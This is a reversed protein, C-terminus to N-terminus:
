LLGVPPLNVLCQHPSWVQLQLKLTKVVLVSGHVGVPRATDLDANIGLREGDLSGRLTLGSM